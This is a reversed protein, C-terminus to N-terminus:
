GRCRPMGNQRGAPVAARRTEAKRKSSMVVSEMAMRATLMPRRRRAPCSSKEPRKRRSSAGPIRDAAAGSRHPRGHLWGPAYRPWCGAPTGQLAQPRPFTRSWGGAASEVRSQRKRRGNGNDRGTPRLAGRDTRGPLAALMVRSVPGLPAPLGRHECQQERWSAGVAPLMVMPPRGRCCIASQSQSRWRAEDGLLGMDELGGRSFMVSAPPSAVSAARSVVSCVAPRLWQSAERGCPRSVFSALALAGQAGALSAAQSQCAGKPAICRYQQEIFDGGAKIRFVFLM